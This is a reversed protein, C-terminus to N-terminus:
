WGAPRPRRGACGGRRAPHSPSRCRGRRTIKVQHDPDLRMRAVLERASVDVDLKGHGWPLGRQARGDGNRRKATLDLHPDRGAGRRPLRSRSRPSPMGLGFPLGPSRYASTRTITGFVSVLRSRSSKSSSAATDSKSGLRLVHASILEDTRDAEAEVGHGSRLPSCGARIRRRTASPRSSQVLSALPCSQNAGDM